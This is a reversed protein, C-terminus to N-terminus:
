AVRYCFCIHTRTKGMTRPSSRGPRIPITNRAIMAEIEPSTANGRFFLRCMHTAITFNAKYIYKRKRSRIIVHSTVMETFNYMIMKAYIEQKICMVKKSHFHLLGVTYKLSRFSTEIGWRSNYLEKLREPPYTDPDLNTLLMEYFEDTIKLRVIRFKLLYFVVPDKKRSKAPLFDFRSKYPVFRFHNRDKFLEKMANTQKRTLDLEVPFDFEDEAPLDFGAKMCHDDSDKLRILFFWGKEQLHAMSNFSEYGRDAIVLARRISSADLMQVFAAHENRGFAADTYIRHDLDYMANLHLLNFPAKGTHAPFFTEEDAPDTPIQVDTGDVALIRLDEEKRFKECRSNFVDMVKKLAEPKLKARQQVFASSTATDPSLGLIDLLEHGLANGGMALTCRIVVDMPLKRNRTFDRQPDLVISDHSRCVDRISSILEKKLKDLKMRVEKCDTKKSIVLAARIFRDNILAAACKLIKTM